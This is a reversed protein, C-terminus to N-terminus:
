RRSFYDRIASVVLDVQEETMGHFLPLSLGTAAWAEAIPFGAADHRLHALCPQRHCPVPYHLGTEIGQKQLHSRLDDREPTRVVYLHWVHDQHVARPVRLPLGALGSAYRAALQKRRDTWAPLRRLKHRLVIGQIGDMRYNFGIETHIYRESQGHNRLRRLRDALAEDATAVLGGEGAAGLNKGPYFSFCGLLGHTGLMQGDSYAGIAQANDEIVKLKYTSALGRIGALDAPQGYLHVPIIAKTRPTIRRSADAVDLNGTADEVECLVPTAGAYLVGWITAIFTHAPVLVEDGPGIGAAMMALHLAATGSSCAIAHPTKMWDAIDREFAEVYRGGSFASNEFLDTIEHQAEAAIERWQIALDNFPVLAKM